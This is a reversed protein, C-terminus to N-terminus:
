PIERIISVLMDFDARTTCADLGTFCIMYAQKYRKLSIALRAAKARLLASSPYKHIAQTYVIFARDRNNATVFADAKKMEETAGVMQDPTPGNGEKPPHWTFSAQRQATSITEDGTTVAQGGDGGTLPSQPPAAPMRFAEQPKVVMSKRALSREAMMAAERQMALDEQSQADYYHWVVFASLPIFLTGALGFALFRFMPQKKLEGEEGAAVLHTARAIRTILDTSQQEAELSLKKRLSTTLSVEPASDAYPSDVKQAVYELDDTSTSAFPTPIADLTETAPIEGPDWAPRIDPGATLKADKSEFEDSSRSEENSIELIRKQFDTLGGASVKEELGVTEDFKEPEEAYFEKLAEYDAQRRTKLEDNTKTPDIIKPKGAQFAEPDESLAQTLAETEEKRQEDLSEETMQDHGEAEEYFQEPEEGLLASMAVMNARQKPSLGEWTSKMIKKAAAAAAAADGQTATSTQGAGAPPAPPAAPPSAAPSAAATTSAAAAVPKPMDSQKAAASIMQANLEFATLGQSAASAAAPASAAVAPTAAAVAPKSAAAAPTAKAEKPEGEEEGDFLTSLSGSTEAQEKAKIPAAPEDAFLEDLKDGIAEAVAPNLGIAPKAEAKVPPEPTVAKVPQAPAAAPEDAFLEDLRDGIAEAVAPNLLSEPKAEAKVPPEPTVAKVPQAPAAVPQAPKEAAPKDPPKEAPKEAAPKDPPKEAPKDAPKEAATKDGTKQQQVYAALAEDSAAGRVRTIELEEETKKKSRKLKTADTEDDNGDGAPEEVPWLVNKIKRAVAHEDAVVESLQISVQCPPPKEDRVELTFQGDSIALVRLMDMLGGDGSPLVKAYVIHKGKEIWLEGTVLDSKITLVAMPVDLGQLLVMVAQRDRTEKLQNLIRDFM